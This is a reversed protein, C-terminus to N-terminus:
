EPVNRVAVKVQFLMQCPPFGQCLLLHTDLLLVVTEGTLDISSTQKPSGWLLLGDREILALRHMLQKTCMMESFSHVIRRTPFKIVEM